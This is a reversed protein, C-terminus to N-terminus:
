ANGKFAGAPKIANEKYENGPRLSRASSNSLFGYSVPWDHVSSLSLGYGPGNPHRADLPSFQHPFMGLTRRLEGKANLYERRRGGDQEWFENCGTAEIERCRQYLQLAAPTVRSRTARHLPIRKTAM